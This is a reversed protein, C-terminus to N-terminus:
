ESSLARAERGLLRQHRLLSATAVAHTRVGARGASRARRGAPLARAQAACSSSCGRLMACVSRLTAAPRRRGSGGLTLGAQAARTVDASACSGHARGGSAFSAPWGHSAAMAGAAAAEAPM